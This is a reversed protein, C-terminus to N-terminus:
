LNNMWDPKNSQDPLEKTAIDGAAVADEIVETIKNFLNDTINRVQPDLNKWQKKDMDRIDAPKSDWVDKEFNKPELWIEQVGTNLQEGTDDDFEVWNAIIKANEPEVNVGALILISELIIM